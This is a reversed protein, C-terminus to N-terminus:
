LRQLSNSEIAWTCVTVDTMDWEQFRMSQIGGPEETWTMKCALLSCHTTMSEELPDEWALSQVWLRKNRRCQCTPEKYSAGGLFGTPVWQTNTSPLASIDSEEHGQPSCGALSREGHSKGPLFVPTPQWKRIWLCRRLGPVCGTDWTNGANAPPNKVVAGSPYRHTFNQALGKTEEERGRM